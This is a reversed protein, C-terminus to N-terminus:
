PWRPGFAIEAFEAIVWRPALAWAWEGKVPRAFALARQTAEDRSARPGTRDPRHARALASRSRRAASARDTTDRRRRARAAGPRPSDQHRAGRARASRRAQHGAVFSIPYHRALDSVSHADRLVVALIDRRTPDALAHFLADARKTDGTRVVMHNYTLVALSRLDAPPQPSVAPVRRVPDLGPDLSLAVLGLESCSLGGSLVSDCRTRRSREPRPAPATAPEFGTEGIPRFRQM